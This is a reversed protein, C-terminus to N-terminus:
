QSEETSEADSSNSSVRVEGDAVEVRYCTLTAGAPASVPAGTRVDFSWGHLPCTVVCEDVSGSALPAWVHPCENQVAFFGEAEHFVAVLQGDHEVIRSHGEPFDEVRAVTTYSM